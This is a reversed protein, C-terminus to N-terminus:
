GTASPAAGPSVGPIGLGALLTAFLDEAFASSGTLADRLVPESPVLGAEASWALAGSLALDPDNEGVPMDYSEIAVEPNLTASWRLGSPAAAEVVACDSDLVYAGLAPHGTVAALTAVAPARPPTAGTVELLQWGQEFTRPGSRDTGFVVVAPAESLPLASRAVVLHGWYGL